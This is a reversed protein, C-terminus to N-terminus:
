YIELITPSINEHKESFNQIPLLVWTELFSLSDLFSLEFGRSYYNKPILSSYSKSIFFTLIDGIFM